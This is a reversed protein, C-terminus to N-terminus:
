RIPRSPHRDSWLDGPKDGAAIIDFTNPRTTVLVPSCACSVQTLVKGGYIPRVFTVPEDTWNAATVDSVIGCGLLVAVRPLFDRGTQTAGALIM